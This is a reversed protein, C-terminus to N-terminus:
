TVTAAIINNDDIATDSGATVRDIERLQANGSFELDDGCRINWSWRSSAQGPLDGTNTALSCMFRSPVGM